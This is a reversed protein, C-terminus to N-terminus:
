RDPSAIVHLSYHKLRMVSRVDERLTPSKSSSTFHNAAITLRFFIIYAFNGSDMALILNDLCM